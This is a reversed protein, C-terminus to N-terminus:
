WDWFAYSGCLYDSFATKLHNYKGEEWMDGGLDENQELVWTAVELDHAVEPVQASADPSDPFKSKM